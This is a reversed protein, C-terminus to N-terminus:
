DRRNASPSKSYDCTQVMRTRWIPEEETRLHPGGNHPSPKALGKRVRYQAMPDRTTLPLSLGGRAMTSSLPSAGIQRSRPRTRNRGTDLPCGTSLCDGQKDKRTAMHSRRQTLVRATTTTADEVTTRERSDKQRPDPLRVQTAAPQGQVESVPARTSVVTRGSTTPANTQWSM